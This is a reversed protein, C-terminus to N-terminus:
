YTSAGSKEEMLIISFLTPNRPSICRVESGLQELLWMSWHLAGGQHGTKTTYQTKLIKDEGGPEVGPGNDQVSVRYGSKAEREISIVVSKTKQNSSRLAELSNKVLNMLVFMFAGKSFKIIPKDISCKVTVVVGSASAEEQSGRVVGEVVARLDLEETNTWEDSALDFVFEVSQNIRSISRTIRECKESITKGSEGLPKALEDINYTAMGITQLPQRIEHLLAPVIIGLGQLKANALEKRKIAGSREVRPYVVEKELIKEFTALQSRVFDVFDKYEPNEQLAERSTTDPLTPNDHHSIEVYGFLQSPIIAAHGARSTRKQKVLLWDEHASGFPLVRFGDRYLRVGPLISIKERRMNARTTFYHFSGIVPGFTTRACHESELEEPELSTADDRVPKRTLQRAVTGENDLWFEYTYDSKQDFRPTISGNLTPYTDVDLELTFSKIERWPTILGEIEAKLRRLSPETWETKRLGGIMLKTGQPRGFQAAPSTYFPIDVDSLDFDGDKDEFQDWDFCIALQSHAGRKLSFVTLKSGLQDAAFRGIGKEGLPHRRGKRTVQAQKRSYGARTWGTKMDGTDSGVGDDEIVIMRRQRNDDSLRFRIWVHSANADYANKVLEAVAVYENTILERGMLKLLNASASLKVTKPPASKRSPHKEGHRAPRAM